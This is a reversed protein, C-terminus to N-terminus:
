TKDEDMEEETVIPRDPEKLKALQRQANTPTPWIRASLGAKLLLGNIARKYISTVSWHAKTDLNEQIRLWDLESFNELEKDTLLNIINWHRKKVASLQGPSLYSGLEATVEAIAESVKM